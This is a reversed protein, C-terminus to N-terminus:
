AVKSSELWVHWTEVAEKAISCWWEECKTEEGETEFLVLNARLGAATGEDAGEAARIEQASGRRLLDVIGRPCKLALRRWHQETLVGEGQLVALRLGLATHFAPDGLSLRQESAIRLAVRQTDPRLRAGTTMAFAYDEEGLGEKLRAVEKSEIAAAIEATSLVLGAYRLLRLLVPADLMVLRLFFPLDSPINPWADIRLAFRECVFRSLLAGGWLRKLWVADKELGETTKEDKQGRAQARPKAEADLVERYSAHLTAAPNCQFRLWLVIADHSTLVEQLAIEQPAIEHPAIASAALM